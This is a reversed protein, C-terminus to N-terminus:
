ADLQGANEALTNKNKNGLCLVTGMMTVANTANAGVLRAYRKRAPNRWDVSHFRETNAASLAMSANAVNAFNAAAENSEQVYIVGTGSGTPAMLFGLVLLEAFNAMDIAAGNVAATFSQYPLGVTCNAAGNNYLGRLGDIVKLM